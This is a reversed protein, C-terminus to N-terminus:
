MPVAHESVYRDLMSEAPGIYHFAEAWELGYQRGIERDSPVGRVHKSDYDLVIHKIYQRNATDEDNGLIPLRLKQAALRSRLRAGNEGGPGQTKNAVNASVKQDIWPTIDVIRNILQRGRAFYYKEGVSHPQAGAEFHEPYDKDMGAMWCAAEVVQATVYHDPNEEYAGWPDYCIITDIKLLRILFILRERMEERSIGDMQHNRYGLDFVKQLGLAKAVGENDKQNDLITEGMTGPGAKEDNSTRILYGSYGESVLKAVTGAAFLSIDDAHPQIAALVKGSHPHGSSPHEVVVQGTRAYEPPNGQTTDHQAIGASRCGHMAGGALLDAVFDRRRM